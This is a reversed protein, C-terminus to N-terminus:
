WPLLYEQALTGWVGGQRPDSLMWPITMVWPTKLESGAFYSKVGAMVGILLASM